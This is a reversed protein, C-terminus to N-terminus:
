YFSNAELRTFNRPEYTKCQEVELRGDLKADEIDSIDESSAFNTALTLTDVSKLSFTTRDIQDHVAPSGFVRQPKGRWTYWLESYLLIVALFPLVWDAVGPRERPDRLVAEELALPPLDLRIAELYISYGLLAAITSFVLLTLVSFLRWRQVM